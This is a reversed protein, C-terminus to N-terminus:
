KTPYIIGYAPLMSRIKKDIMASLYNAFLKDNSQFNM